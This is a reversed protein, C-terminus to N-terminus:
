ALQSPAHGGFPPWAGIELARLAQSTGGGSIGGGDKPSTGGGLKPENYPGQSMIFVLIQPDINGWWEWVMLVRSVGREPIPTPCTPLM